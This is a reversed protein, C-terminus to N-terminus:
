LISDEILSEQYMGRLRQDMEVKELSFELATEKTIKKEQYRPKIIYIIILIPIGILAILGLPYLFSM